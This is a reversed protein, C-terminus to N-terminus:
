SPSPQATGFPKSPSRRSAPALSAGPPFPGPTARLLVEAVRRTYTLFAMDEFFDRSGGGVRNGILLDTGLRVGM